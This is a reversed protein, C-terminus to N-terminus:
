TGAGRVARGREARDPGDVAPEALPGLPGRGGLDLEPRHRVAHRRRQRGRASRDAHRDRGDDAGQGQRRCLDAVAGRARADLHQGADTSALRVRRDRRARERGGDALRRPGPRGLPGLGAGPRSRRDPDLARRGALALGGIRDNAARHWAPRARALRGRGATIATVEAGDFGPDDAVPRGRPATRRAGSARGVSSCSPVWAGAPWCGSRGRRWRRDPAGLRTPGDIIAVDHETWAGATPRPGPSRASAPGGSRSWAAAAGPLPALAVAFAPEAPRARGIEVLVLSRSGDVDLRGAALGLRRLRGRHAPGALNTVDAMTAQGPFHGPHGATYRGRPDESPSRDPRSPTRPAPSTSPRGGTSGPSRRHARALGRALSTAVSAPPPPTSPACGGGLVLAVLVAAAPRLRSRAARRLRAPRPLRPARSM